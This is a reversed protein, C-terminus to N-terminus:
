IDAPIRLPTSSLVTAAAGTADTTSSLTFLYEQGPSFFPQYVPNTGVLAQQNIGNFDRINLQGGAVYLLHYGDMWIVNQQPADLKELEYSYGTHYLANFVAIQRGSEALLFQTNASFGLYSPDKIKMIWDAPVPQNPYNSIFDLPNKYIVVQSGSTEGVALYWDGSYQALNLLYDSSNPQYPLGSAILYNQGGQNWIINVSGNKAQTAYVVVGGAYDKYALVNSLYPTVSNNGLTAQDLEHTTPDFFWFQNYAQSVLAANTVKRGFAAELNISNAPNSIDVLVYGSQGNFDHELLVHQNDDAWEVLKWTGSTSDPLLDSPLSFSTIVPQAPSSLDILKFKTLDSADGILLWQDNPSETAISPNGSLNLVPTSVLNNPILLPYGYRQVRGGILDITRQWPRYGSRTLEVNYKGAEIILRKSTTGNPQGDLTINANGPTSSLFMMGDRVIVGNKYSFGLVLYFLVVVAVAVAMAVLIYGSFLRVLHWKRKKPNLYDVPNFYLPNIKTM